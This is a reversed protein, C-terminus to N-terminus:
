HLENDKQKVIKLARSASSVRCSCAKCSHWPSVAPRQLLGWSMLQWRAQVPLHAEGIGQLWMGAPVRLARNPCDCARQPRRHSVLMMRWGAQSESSGQLWTRAPVRLASSACCCQPISLLEDDAKAQIVKM